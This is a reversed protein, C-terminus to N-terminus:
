SGYVEQFVASIQSDIKMYETQLYKTLKDSNGSVDKLRRFNGQADKAYLIGLWGFLEYQKDTGDKYQIQVCFGGGEIGIDEVIDSLEFAGISNLIYDAQDKSCNIWANHYSIIAANSYKVNVINEDGAYHYNTMPFYFDGNYIFEREEDPLAVTTITTITSDDDTKAATTTTVQATTKETTVTEPRTTTKAFTAYEISTSENTDETVSTTTVIAATSTHTTKAATDTASVTLSQTDAQTSSETVAATKFEEPEPAKTRNMHLLVGTAIMIAAAGTGMAIRTLKVKTRYKIGKSNTSAAEAILDDDIAEIGKLLQDKKM